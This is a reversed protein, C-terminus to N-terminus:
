RREEDAEEDDRCGKATARTTDGCRREWAGTKTWVQIASAQSLSYMVHRENDVVLRDIPSPAGFGLLPPLFSPLYQQVGGTLRVKTHPTFM